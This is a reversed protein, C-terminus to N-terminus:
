ASFMLSRQMTILGIMWMSLHVAGCLLYLLMCCKRIEERSNILWRMIVTTGKQEAISIFTTNKEVKLGQGILFRRKILSWLYTYTKCETSKIDKCPFGILSCAWLSSVRGALNHPLCEYSFPPLGRSRLKLTLSIGADFTMELLPNYFCHDYNRVVTIM